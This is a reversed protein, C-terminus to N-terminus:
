WIIPYPLLIEIHVMLGDDYQVKAALVVLEDRAAHAFAANVALDLGVRRRKRVKECHLGDAEDEGAARVAHIKLVRRVDIGREKIRAHGHEADAVAALEDRVVEAALDDGCVVGGRAFVALGLRKKVRAALEELAKGFLAHRPHAVAVVHLDNGLAEREDRVGVGARVDGDAVFRAPEVAHLVMGLDVVRLEAGRHDAVEEVLDAARCAVPRHAVIFISGDGGHAFLDAGAAHQQREGAAHVRGDHRRQQGLGDAGLEGANKDVVAEHAEVLTVLDLRRELLPVDVKDAHVGLAAEERLESADGIGLALALNDAFLEDAHELFLRLLDARDVKESLARDVGVDDFGAKAIGCDDLAVVIDATKGVIDVELLDDLRQAQEKLVFHTLEAALQPKGFVEDGALREGARAKGDADHALDRLFLGVRQAKGVRDVALLQFLGAFVLLHVLVEGDQGVRAGDADHAIAAAVVAHKRQASHRGLVEHGGVPGADGVLQEVLDAAADDVLDLADVSHDVVDGAFGGCRHLPFLKLPRLFGTNIRTQPTRLLRKIVIQYCGYM